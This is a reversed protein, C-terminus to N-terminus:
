CKCDTCARRQYLHSGDRKPANPNDLSLSTARAVHLEHPVAYPSVTESRRPPKTPSLKTHTHAAGTLMPSATSQNPYRVALRYCAPTTVPKDREQATCACLVLDFRFASARASTPQLQHGAQALTTYPRHCARYCQECKTASSRRLGKENCFNGYEKPYPVGGVQMSSYRCENCEVAGDVSHLPGASRSVATSHASCPLEVVCLYMVRRVAGQPM